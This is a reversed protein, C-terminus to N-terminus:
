AARAKPTAPAFNDQARAILSIFVDELNADAASIRLDARARLPALAAELQGADQGAVHVSNGFAAVSLVGPATKLPEVLKAAGEGTVSWVSLAAQDIIERETGRALM